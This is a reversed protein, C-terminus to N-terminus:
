EKPGFYKMVQMARPEQYTQSYMVAHAYEHALVAKDMNTTLVMNVDPRYIAVYDRISNPRVLMVNPKIMHEPNVGMMLCVEEWTGAQVPFALLFLIIITKV